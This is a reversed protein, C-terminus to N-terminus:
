LAGATWCGALAITGTTAIGGAGADLLMTMVGDGVGAVVRGVVGTAVGRGMVEVSALPLIVMEVLVAMAWGIM